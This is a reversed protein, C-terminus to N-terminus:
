PHDAEEIDSVSRSNDQGKLTAHFYEMWCKHKEGMFTELQNIFAEKDKQGTVVYVAVMRKIGEAQDRYLGWKRNVDFLTLFAATISSFGMIISPLIRLGEDISMLNIIGSVIPCVITIMSFAYFCYKSKIARRIHWELCVQVRSQIFPDKIAESLYKNEAIEENIKAKCFM